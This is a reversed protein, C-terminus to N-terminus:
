VLIYFVMLVLVFVSGCYFSVEVICLLKLELVFEYFLITRIVYLVGLWFFLVLEVWM